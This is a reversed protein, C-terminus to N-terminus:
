EFKVSVCKTEDYEERNGAIDRGTVTFIYQSGKEGKFTASTAQTDPLWLLFPEGDKSYYVNYDGMKDDTSESWTLTVTSNTVYKDADITTVPADNDYNIDYSLIASHGRSDTVILNLTATCYGAYQTQAEVPMTLDSDLEFTEVPEDLKITVIQDILDNWWYSYSVIRADETGTAAGKYFYQIRLESWRGANDKVRYKLSHMGPHLHNASLVFQEDTYPITVAERYMDDWWYQLSEIGANDPSSVPDQSDDSTAACTVPNESASILACFLASIIFFIYRKM